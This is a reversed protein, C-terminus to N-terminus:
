DKKQSLLYRVVEEKSERGRDWWTVTTRVVYLGDEDEDEDVTRSFTHGNDFVEGEVELDKPDDTVILPYEAEGQGLSWQAEQYEKSRSIAAMCRVAGTLLVTLGISLMVIALLVEVLTFAKKM